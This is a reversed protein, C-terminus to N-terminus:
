RTRQIRRNTGATVIVLHFISIDSLSPLLLPPSSSEIQPYLLIPCSLVPCSLKPYSLVPCSLVPCSLVPCTLIPYSSIPYSIILYSIIHHSLIHHSLCTTYSLLVCCIHYLLIIVSSVLAECVKVPTSGDLRLFRMGIDYLLV